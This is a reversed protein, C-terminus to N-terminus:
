RTNEEAYHDQAERIMNLIHDDDLSYYAMKGSRRYKVLRFARLLRLHHAVAPSTMELISALDCVCLEKQSLLYIIQTRTEDALVKFVESLGAVDALTERLSDIGQSACYVDCVDEDRQEGSSREEDM